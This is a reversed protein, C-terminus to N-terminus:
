QSQSVTLWSSSSLSWRVVTYRFRRVCVHLPACVSVLYRLGVPRRGIETWREQKVDKIAKDTRGQSEGGREGSRKVRKRYM